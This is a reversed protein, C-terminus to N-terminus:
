RGCLNNGNIKNWIKYKKLESLSKVGDFSEMRRKKNDIKEWYVIGIKGVLTRM